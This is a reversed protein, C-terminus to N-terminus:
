IIQVACLEDKRKFINLASKNKIYKYVSTDCKPLATKHTGSNM